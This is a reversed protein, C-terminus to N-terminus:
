RQWQTLPTVSGGSKEYTTIPTVNVRQRNTSEPLEGPLRRFRWYVPAFAANEQHRKM